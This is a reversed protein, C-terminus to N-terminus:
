NVMRSIVMDIISFIIMWAVRIGYIPTKPTTGFVAM